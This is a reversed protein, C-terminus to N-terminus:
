TQLEVITDIYSSPTTFSIVGRLGYEPVVTGFVETRTGIGSFCKSTNVLIVVLDDNNITPSTSLCSSDIDRVVMLGYTTAALTSSNLTGFLGGSVTSSYVSNTYNLVAQTSSDSLTIYAYTLDVDQSGATTRLFIALQSIASGDYYGTVQNVRLGSSIDRLTEQGTTLAQSELQNMTQILVSAAMGAVLIMAIFIILTGIGVAAANNFKHVRHTLPIKVRRVEWYILSLPVWFSLGDL